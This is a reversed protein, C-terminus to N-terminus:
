ALEAWISVVGFFPNDGEANPELFSVDICGAERNIPVLQERGIKRLQEEM